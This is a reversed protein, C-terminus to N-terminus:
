QKLFQKYLNNQHINTAGTEEYMDNLGAEYSHPLLISKAAAM